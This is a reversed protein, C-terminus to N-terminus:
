KIVGRDVLEYYCRRTAKVDNLADHADEFDENFLHRHLEELTPWKHGYKGPIACYSTSALMTCSGEILPESIQFNDTFFKQLVAKDFHFNHAVLGNRAMQILNVIHVSSYAVRIGREICWDRTIGHVQTAEPPVEGDWYPYIYMSIHEVTNRFGDDLIAGFQLLKPQRPDSLPVGKLLIGTTETDFFLKFGNDM